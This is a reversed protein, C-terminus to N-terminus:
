GNKRSKVKLHGQGQGSSTLGVGSQSEAVGFVYLYISGTRYVPNKKKKKQQATNNILQRICEDINDNRLIYIHLSVQLKNSRKTRLMYSLFSKSFDVANKMQVTTSYKIVLSSRYAQSERYTTNSM